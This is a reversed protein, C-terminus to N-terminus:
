IKDEFYLFYNSLSLVAELIIWNLAFAQHGVPIIINPSKGFTVKISILTM